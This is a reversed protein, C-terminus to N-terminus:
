GRKRGQANSERLNIDTATLLAEVLSLAEPNRKAIRGVVQQIRLTTAYIQPDTDKPMTVAPGPTDLAAMLDASGTELAWAIRALTTCRPEREGREYRSLSEPSSMGLRAAVDAQSLGLEKRRAAIAHGLLRALMDHNLKMRSDYTHM